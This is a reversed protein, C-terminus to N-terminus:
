LVQLSLEFLDCGGLIVDIQFWVERWCIRIQILGPQLCSLVLTLFSVPHELIAYKLAWYRHQRARHYGNWLFVSFQAEKHVVSPGFCYSYPHM